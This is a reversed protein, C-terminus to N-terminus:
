FNYVLGFTAATVTSRDVIPSNAIESGFADIKIAGIGLLSKTIPYAATISANANLTSGGRYQARDATAQSASIGYYYNVLNSDQFNLGFAPTLSLKKYSFSKSITGSFETGNSVGLIDTLLQLNLNVPANLLSVSLGAHISYDTDELGELAPSEEAKYGLFRPVALLDYRLELEPATYPDPDETIQFGLNLGNVYFGGREYTFFPLPAVADDAGDYPRTTSSITFGIGPKAEGDAGLASTDISAPAAHLSFSSMVLMAGLIKTKM